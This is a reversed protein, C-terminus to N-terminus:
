KKNKYNKAENLNELISFDFKSDSDFSFNNEGLNELLKRDVKKPNIVTKEDLIQIVTADDEKEWADIHERMEVCVLANSDIDEESSIEEDSLSQTVHQGTNKCLFADNYTQLNNTHGM